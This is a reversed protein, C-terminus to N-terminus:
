LFPPFYLFNSSILLDILSFLFFLLSILSAFLALSSVLYSAILFVCILPIRSISFRALCVSVVSVLVPPSCSLFAESRSRQSVYIHVFVLFCGVCVCNRRFVLSFLTPYDDKFMFSFMIM